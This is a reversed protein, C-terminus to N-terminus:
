TLNIKKMDAHEVIPQQKPLAQDLLEKNPPLLPFDVIFKVHLDGKKNNQLDNIGEGSIKKLTHPRIVDDCTLLLEREDLHRLVKKFGLLADRLTIHMEYELDCQTRSWGSPPHKVQTIIYLDGPNEYMHHGQARFCLEFGADVGAPIPVETLESSETYGKANCEKCERGIRISTGSGKCQDCPRETQQLTNLNVRKTVVINGLGDCKSCDDIYETSIAKLGDCGACKTKRTINVNKNTGTYAEAFSIKVHKKITQDIRQETKQRRNMSTHFHNGPFGRFMKEFMNAFAENSSPYAYHQNSSTKRGAGFGSFSAGFQSVREYDVGYKDYLKRKDADKLTEYATTLSHYREKVKKMPSNGKYKDPHHQLSLKYYARKIESQTATKSVGLVKYYDVQQSTDNSM